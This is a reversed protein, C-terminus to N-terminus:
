GGGHGAALIDAEAGAPQRTALIWCQALGLSDQALLAPLDAREGNVICPYRVEPSSVVLRVPTAPSPDGAAGRKAIM